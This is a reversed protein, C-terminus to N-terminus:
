APVSNEDSKIITVLAEAQQGYHQTGLTIDVAIRERRISAAAEPVRLHFEFSIVQGPDVKKEAIEPVVRWGEPIVLNAQVIETTRLPNMVECTYLIDDGAEVEKQYPFLWAIFGEVGANVDELPLIDKHHSILRESREKLQEFYDEDPYLASWHGSLIIDPRLRNYLEAGLRYDTLAYRNQYVYNWIQGNDGQFEDGTFLIRKGDAELLIAVAYSTHGPLPYLTLNFEEWRIQKELPQVVDVKIPDFWLCPLNYRSPDSLIEAFNRPAWIATHEVQQLLNLGAVHDDHYHTMLAADIVNVGLNKKLLPITYLWPRRSPRGTGDPFGGIFDYGYDIIMAKGGDSVVVYSNAVSTLNRYVHPTLQKFPNKVRDLLNRHENRDQLLALLKEVLEEIARSPEDILGGHSPLLLDLERNQIQLLSLTTYAVGEAGNYTWQTAALSWLKSPATILDGVFAIKRGEFEIVLSISGPTHGPTPLVEFEVGNFAFHTYDTLVGAIPVSHLLSFRDQCVNYNNDINRGQWHWDVESFLEREMDPVWIPINMDVARQLGQGQDRHHHTMLIATVKHIGLEALEDLVSGDGFDILVASEGNRIIYVNCTSRFHFLDNLIKEM